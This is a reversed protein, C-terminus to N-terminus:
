LRNLFTKGIPKFLNEILNIPGPIGLNKGIQFFLSMMLLFVTCLFEKWMNKKILFIGELMVILIALIIVIATM